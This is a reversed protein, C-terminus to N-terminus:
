YARWRRNYTDHRYNWLLLYLFLVTTIGTLAIQLLIYTSM